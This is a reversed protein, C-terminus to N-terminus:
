STWIKNAEPSDAIQSLLEAVDRLTGHRVSMELPQYELICDSRLEDGNDPRKFRCAIRLNRDGLFRKVVDFHGWQLIRKGGPPLAPIGNALAGSSIPEGLKESAGVIPMCQPIDEIMEFRIDRALGVGINEIVIDLTPRMEDNDVYVIVCPDTQAQVIRRTLWAYCSTVGVLVLTSIATTITSVANVDM